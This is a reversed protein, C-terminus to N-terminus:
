PNAIESKLQDMFNGTLAKKGQKNKQYEEEQTSSGRAKVKPLRKLRERRACHLQIDWTVVAGSCM